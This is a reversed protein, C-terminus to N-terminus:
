GYYLGTRRSSIWSTLREKKMERILCQELSEGWDLKGGPLSWHRTASVEQKVLLIRGNEIINGGRPIRPRQVPNSDTM